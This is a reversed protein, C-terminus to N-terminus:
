HYGRNQLLQRLRRGAAFCDYTWLDRNDQNGANVPKRNSRLRVCAAGAAVFVLDAGPAIYVFRRQLFNSRV